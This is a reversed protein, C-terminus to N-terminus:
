QELRLRQEVLKVCHRHIFDMSDSEIIEIQRGEGRLANIAYLYHTRLNILEERKIRVEAENYGHEKIIKTLVSDIPVDVFIVLDPWPIFINIRMLWELPVIDSYNAYAFLLYRVCLVYKSNQIDVLISNPDNEKVGYYHDMRDAVALLASAYQHMDIRGNLLLRLQAGLPGDTPERTTIVSRGEKKKLLHALNEAQMSLIDTDVGEFAIVQGTM